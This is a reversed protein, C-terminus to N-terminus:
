PRRGNLSRSTRSAQRRARKSSTAAPARPPAGPSCSVTARHRQAGPRRAGAPVRAVPVSWTCRTRPRDPSRRRAARARARLLQWRARRDGGAYTFSRHRSRAIDSAGSDLRGRTSIRDAGNRESPPIWASCRRPRCRGRRSATPAGPLDVPVIKLIRGSFSAVLYLEGEHDRGFSVIGGLSGGLEATHDVANVFTAERTVSNVSIGVSGVVFYPCRGCLLPRSVGGAIAHRPLHLRRHDGPRHQARLRVAPKDVAHLRTARNPDIGPTAITGERISWGYNRASSGAPEYNVEERAGQGVDGIILAGTAGAGFDDFTYRWPNRLGFDWIEGLAAIPQGDLFPNGPPVIYGTPHGDPVNVDIRLM